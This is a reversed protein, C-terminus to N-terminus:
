TKDEEALLQRKLEKLARNRTKSISQQSVGEKAAIETDSMNCLYAQNLIQKQRSTLSAFAQFLTPNEIYCLLDQNNALVAEDVPIAHKDTIVDKFSINNKTEDHIPQDLILLQNGRYMNVKKDYRIAHRRLENSLQSILRIEAFHDQFAQDLAQNTKPTPHRISQNLLFFNEKKLLFSQVLRNRFILENEAIFKKAWMYECQKGDFIITEEM